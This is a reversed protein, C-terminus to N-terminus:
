IETCDALVTDCSHEATFTREGAVLEVSFKGDGGSMPVVATVGDVDSIVGLASIMVISCIFISISISLSSRSKQFLCYRFDIELFVTLSKYTFRSHFMTYKDSIAM